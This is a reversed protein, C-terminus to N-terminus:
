KSGADAGQFFSARYDNYQDLAAEEVRIRTRLVLLNAVSFVIATIWASHVLPLAFMEVIVAVYNPHRVFRYPGGTVVPLGPVCVVRTTWRKGLTTVAWYRLAMSLALLGLMPLGLAAEFPRDLLWVEAACAILFASHVAVMWRYHNEGVELGGHSFAWARNRRTIALEVLREGVIAALLLYYLARTDYGAADFM